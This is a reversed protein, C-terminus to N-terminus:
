GDIMRFLCFSVYLITNGAVIEQIPSFPNRWSPSLMVHLDIYMNKETLKKLLRGITITGFVEPSNRTLWRFDWLFYIRYFSIFKIIFPNWLIKNYTIFKIWLVSLRFYNKIDYCSTNIKLNLNKFTYSVKPKNKRIGWKKAICEPDLIKFEYPANGTWKIISANQEEDILLELLFQWLHVAGAVALDFQSLYRGFWLMFSITLNAFQFNIQM